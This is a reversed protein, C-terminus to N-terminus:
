EEHCAALEALGDRAAAWEDHVRLRFELLRVVVVLVAHEDASLQTWRARRRPRRRQSGQTRRAASSPRSRGGEEFDVPPLFFHAHRAYFYSLPESHPPYESGSTSLVASPALPASRTAPYYSLARLSPLVGLRQNIPCRESRPSCESDSPLLVAARLSPSASRAAPSYSGAVREDPPPPRGSTALCGATNCPM